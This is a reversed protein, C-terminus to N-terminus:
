KEIHFLILSVLSCFLQGFVPSARYECYSFVDHLAVQYDHNYGSHQRRPCVAHHCECISSVLHFLAGPCFSLFRFPGESFMENVILNIAREMSYAKRRGPYLQCEELFGMLLRSAVLMSYMLISRGPFWAIYDARRTCGPIEHKSSQVVSISFTVLTIRSSSFTTLASTECGRPCIRYSSSADERAADIMSGERLSKQYHSPCRNRHSHKRDQEKEARWFM